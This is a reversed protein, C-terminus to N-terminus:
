CFKPCKFDGWVPKNKYDGYHCSMINMGSTCKIIKHFECKECKNIQEAGTM